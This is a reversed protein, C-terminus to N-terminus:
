FMGREEVKMARYEETSEMVPAEPIRYPGTMDPGPASCGMLLLAILLSVVIGWLIYYKNKRQFGIIEISTITAKQLDTIDM